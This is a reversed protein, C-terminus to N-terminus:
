TGAADTGGEEPAADDAPAAPKAGFMLAMLAQVRGDKTPRSAAELARKDSYWQLFKECTLLQVRLETAAVERAKLDLRERTFAEHSKQRRAELELSRLSAIGAILKPFNEDDVKELVGMIRGGAIAATGDMISGGAAEGLKLAFEALDKTDAIRERRSLWNQYGGQRWESLNQPSIPEEHFQEDLVRLVDEQTHLWAIIKPGPQGDYIRRCVENRIAVPLRAIKGVRAPEPTPTPM